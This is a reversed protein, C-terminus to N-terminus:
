ENFSPNFVRFYRLHKLIGQMKFVFNQFIPGVSTKQKEEIGVVVGHLILSFLFCGHSNKLLGFNIEPYPHQRASGGM